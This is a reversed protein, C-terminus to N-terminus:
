VYGKVIDKKAKLLNLSKNEELARIDKYITNTIEGRYSDTRSFKINAKLINLKLRDDGIRIGNSIVAVYHLRRNLYYNSIKSKGIFIEVPIQMRVKSKSENSIENYINRSNDKNLYYVIGDSTNNFWRKYDEMANKELSSVSKAYIPGDLAYIKIEAKPLSGITVNSKINDKFTFYSYSAKTGILILLIAIVLIKSKKIMM